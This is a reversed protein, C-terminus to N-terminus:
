RKSDNLIHSEVYMMEKQIRDIKQVIMDYYAKNSYCPNGPDLVRIDCIIHHWKIFIGILKDPPLALKTIEQEIEEDSKELEPRPLSPTLISNSASM